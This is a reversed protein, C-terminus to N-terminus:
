EEETPVSSYIGWRMLQVKMVTVAALIADVNLEVNGRIDECQEEICRTSCYSGEWGGGPVPRRLAARESSIRHGKWDCTGHFIPQLGDIEEDWNYRQCLFMRDEGAEYDEEEGRQIFFPNSPGWIRFAEAEEEENAYRGDAIGYVNLRTQADQMGVDAAVIESYRNIDEDDVDDKIMNAATIIADGYVYPVPLPPVRGMLGDRMWPGPGVLPGRAAYLPLLWNWIGDNGEREATDMLFGVTTATLLTTLDEGEAQPNNMRDYLLSKDTRAFIAVADNMVIPARDNPLWRCSDVIVTVIQVDYLLWVWSVASPNVGAVAIIMSTFPIQRALPPRLDVFTDLVYDVVSVDEWEMEYMILILESLLAAQDTESMGTLDLSDLYRRPNENGEQLAVRWEDLAGEAADVVESEFLRENVDEM